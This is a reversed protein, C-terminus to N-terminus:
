KYFVILYFFRLDCSMVQWYPLRMQGFSWRSLLTVKFWLREGDDRDLVADNIHGLVKKIITEKKM